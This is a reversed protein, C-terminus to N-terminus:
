ETGSSSVNQVSQYSPLGYIGKGARALLGKATMRLLQVRVAYPRGGVLRHIERAHLPQRAVADFIKNAPGRRYVVVKRFALTDLKYYQANRIAADLELLEAALQDRRQIADALSPGTPASATGNTNPETYTQTCFESSKVAKELSAVKTVGKTKM